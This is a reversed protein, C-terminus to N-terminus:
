VAPRRAVRTAVPEWLLAALLGVLLGIAAGVLASNRHSRATTKVAYARSVVRSEEVNQALALQQRETSLDQQVVGRRQEALGALTLIVLQNTASGGKLATNYAALRTDLSALEREDQAIQSQESAAKTLAYGSVSRVVLDALANAAQAEKQGARGQVTLQVLPTQGLKAIAGQVASVSIGSRLRGPPLRLRHAVLRVNSDSRAVQRVTTPNTALSQIQVAGSPSLPQGLYILASARYTQSGGLSALYGLVAGAILGGLVLWWRQLLARALRGLDVEQEADVDPPVRSM